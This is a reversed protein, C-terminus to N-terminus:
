NIVDNDAIQAERIGLSLKALLSAWERFEGLGKWANFVGIFWLVIVIITLVFALVPFAELFSLIMTIVIAVRFYNTAKSLKKLEEKYLGGISVEGREILLLAEKGMEDFVGVLFFSIGAVIIDLVIGALAIGQVPIAIKAIIHQPPTSTSIGTNVENAVTYLVYITVANFALILTLLILGVKAYASFSERWLSARRVGAVFVLVPIISIILAAISLGAIYGLDIYMGQSVRYRIHAPIFSLLFRAIISFVISIVIYYRLLTAGSYICKSVERWDM